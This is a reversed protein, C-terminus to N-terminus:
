SKKLKYLYYGFGAGFILHLLVILIGRKNLAGSIVGLVSVLFAVALTAFNGVLNAKVLALRDYMSAYLNLFSYGILSSGLFRIFISGNDLPKDIFLNVITNPFLLFGLGIVATTVATM